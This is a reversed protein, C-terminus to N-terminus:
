PLGVAERAFRLDDDTYLKIDAPDINYFDLKGVPCSLDGAPENGFCETMVTEWVKEKVFSKIRAAVFKKVLQVARATFTNDHREVM